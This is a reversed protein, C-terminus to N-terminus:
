TGRRRGGPCFDCGGEERTSIPMEYWDVGLPARASEFVPVMRKWHDSCMHLKVAAQNDYFMIEM